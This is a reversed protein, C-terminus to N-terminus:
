QGILATRPKHGCLRIEVKTKLDGERHKDRKEGGRGEGRWGRREGGWEREEGKQKISM